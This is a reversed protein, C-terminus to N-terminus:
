TPAPGDCSQHSQECNKTLGLSCHVVKKAMLFLGWLVNLKTTSLTHTHPPPPPLPCLAYQIICQLIWLIENQTSSQLVSPSPIVAPFSYPTVAKLTPQDEWFVSKQSHERITWWQESKKGQTYSLRIMASFLILSFNFVFIHSIMSLPINGQM